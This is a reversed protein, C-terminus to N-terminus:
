SSSLRVPRRSAASANGDSIISINSEDKPKDADAGARAAGFRNGQDISDLAAPCPYHQAVELL